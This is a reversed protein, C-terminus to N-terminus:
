AYARRDNNFAMSDSSSSHSSDDQSMIKRLDSLAGQIHYRIAQQTFGMQKALETPTYKECGWLGFANILIKRRIPTLFMISQSLQLLLSPDVLSDEDTNYQDEVWQKYSYNDIFSDMLNNDDNETINVTKTYHRFRGIATLTGNNYSLKISRGLVSVTHNYHNLSRNIDKRQIITLPIEVLDPTPSYGLIRIIDDICPKSTVTIRSSTYFSDAHYETILRQALRMAVRKVNKSPDNKCVKEAEIIALDAIRRAEGIVDDTTLIKSLIRYSVRQVTSKLENSVM